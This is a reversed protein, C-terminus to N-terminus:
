TDLMVRVVLCTPNVNIAQISFCDKRKNNFKLSFFFFTYTKFNYNRLFKHSGESLGIPNFAM